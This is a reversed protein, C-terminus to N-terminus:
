KGESIGNIINEISALLHSSAGSHLHSNLLCHQPNPCHVLPPSSNSPGDGGEEWSVLSVEAM